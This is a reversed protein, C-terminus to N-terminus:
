LDVYWDKATQSKKEAAQFQQTFRDSCALRIRDPTAPTNLTVYIDQLGADRRASTVADHVAHLVSAALFLPPEGANKSSYVARPNRAHRLLSVNFVEPVTGLTPVKYTGPGRTLLTGDPRVKYQELMMMGYGQVFAGEVQGIDLTPNLSKGADMVVDSRLVKHEGTLCDIEVESCAAGFCFYSFVRGQNTQFDYGLDPVIHFGSASLNVRAKYASQVLEEWSLTVDDRTKQHVDLRTRLTECAEKVAEGYIDSSMSAATISSNPVIDTSTETISIKSTPVRLLRSAIQIMKTNLGQGMEVGGFSVLVSGDSYINVLAGGQNLFVATFAMGYKTPVVSLGRKRWRNERNFKDVERRRTSFDSREMCEEWCGQLTVHDLKQNYHTLDGEKYFNIERVKEPAMKLFSAVHNIWTEAVVMAQPGGFGRFATNSPLNTKCLEGGTSLNPINYCNDTNFMAKEMVGNSTESTIGANLYMNVDLVQVKGDSNFGVKYQGLMPHRTATMMMDENRDLQCRVARKLKHAAVVMPLIIVYVRAQKGGFAGGVRKTRVNIKSRSVNLTKAVNEQVGSPSQASAFIEMEGDEGPRVLAVNTELYLHEQAEIHVEGQLVHEVEAFAATVDGRQISHPQPFYSDKAIADQITIVADLTEYEVVVAAAARQALTKNEALVVGIVQGQHTVEDSAFVVNGDGWINSGPIDKHSVFDVVGNIALAPAPDVRILRAHAQTSLVCGMYLEGQSTPIDDVYVAEGTTQKYAAQHVLPRHVADELPQDPTVAEFVQTGHALERKMPQTASVHSAEKLVDLAQNQKHLRQLIDMYCKFFFSVTLSRRYQIMGGPAEDSLPLDEALTQCALSLLEENWKRGVLASSTKTALVTTPAMGGFALAAEQVTCDENLVVRMGANVISTDDDKRNAQKYGYFYENQRSYPVCVSLLIESPQTATKRYGTFFTSDMTVDRTTAETSIFQLKAGCAMLLPNLDSIPSATMINGGLAAVNRVQSGAFWRLMEMVASFVSTKWEPLDNVAEKLVSELTVLTVSAGFKIGSDTHEVTLLEPVHTAAVLVPYHQKKFRTEIGIETNGVVLKCDPHSKKIDLLQTLSTPRYWTVRGSTFKLAEKNLRMAQTKLFPPFIPEQTPDYLPSFKTTASHTEEAYGNITNDINNGENTPEKTCCNEGKCCGGAVNENTTTVCCDNNTTTTTTENMCCSDGMGCGGRTFPRFGDIISRYGTCRCLNGDFATELQHTTPVPHNRLLTYMSMVFGPTCFGCQTGHADALNKQVPHLRTSLSGVGEVTTIAVGHLSCLPTLCATVSQQHIRDQTPSYRSVMVTCAGCGGEGCGLKTGTLQLNQRLYQLLTMEPDPNSIEMKRGNVFFVILRGEAM